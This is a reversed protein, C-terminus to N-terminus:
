PRVLAGAPLTLWDGDGMLADLPASPTVPAVSQAMAEASGTQATLILWQRRSGQDEPDGIIDLPIREAGRHLTVRWGKAVASRYRIKITWITDTLPLDAALKRRSSIQRADALIRIAPGWALAEGGVADTIHMPAQLTAPIM